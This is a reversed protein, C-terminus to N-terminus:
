QWPVLGIRVGDGVRAIVEAAPAHILDLVLNPFVGFALTLAALPALTLIERPNMDTLHHGVGKLFDSVEGFVVRQYM